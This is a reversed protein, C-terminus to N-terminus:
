RLVGEAGHQFRAITAFPQTGCTPCKFKTREGKGRICDGKGCLKGNYGHIDSDFLELVKGCAQCELALPSVFVEGFPPNTVYYGLVYHNMGGCNCRIEFFTNWPSGHGDLNDMPRDTPTTIFGALCEPPRPHLYPMPDEPDALRPGFLRHRLKKFLSAM